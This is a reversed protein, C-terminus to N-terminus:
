RKLRNLLSRGDNNAPPTIGILESLTPTVDVSAAKLTDLGTKIGAGYFILPVHRDYFYPTGHSTGHPEDSIIWYEKFRLMIDPSRDPYYNNRYLNVFPRADDGDSALDDRTFADAVFSLRKINESVTLRLWPEDHGTTKAEAYNLIVGDGAALVVNTSCKIEAAVAAGIRRIAAGLTDSDIRGAAIGKRKLEEPLPAVGHDGTLAAVYQNVGVTSDLFAFFSNLYSDLRLYHDQIEHSSPGYRHGIYDGASCGIMLLDPISDTGLGENIVLNRAFQLTLQDFFPTYRLEEYYERPVYDSDAAFNHPFATSKGDYEATVSDPGVYKDRPLLRDWVDVSYNDAPRRNNFSDVWAPYATEYYTSTVFAGDNPFYWYAQGGFGAILISSRDKGTVAFVKSQPSSQRLWDGFVPRRLNNPSRGPTRLKGFREVIEKSTDEVCYVWRSKTGDWWENGVIGHHSPYCGTAITAHGVGTETVAHEHYAETFQFGNDLLRKFGGILLAQERTLYDSRMQDVVIVVALKPKESAHIQALALLAIFLILYRRPM